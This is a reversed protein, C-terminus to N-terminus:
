ETKDTETNSVTQRSDGSAISLGQLIESGFVYTMCSPLILWAGSSNNAAGIEYWAYLLHKSPFSGYFSFMQSVTTASTKSAPTTSM